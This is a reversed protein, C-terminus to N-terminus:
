QLIQDESFNFLLLNAVEAFANGMQKLLQGKIDNFVEHANENLFSNVANGLGNDGDLFHDFHYSAKSPMLDLAFADVEMALVPTPSSSLREPTVVDQGEHYYVMWVSTVDTLTVNFDGQGGLPLRHVGGEATYRGSFGLEPTRTSIEFKGDEVNAKVSLVDAQSLGSVTVGDLTMKLSVEGEGLCLTLEPLSLPDIAPFGLAEVRVAARSEVGPLTSTCLACSALLFLMKLIRQLKSREKM